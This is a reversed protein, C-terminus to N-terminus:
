GHLTREWGLGIGFHVWTMVNGVEDNCRGANRTRWDQTMICGEASCHCFTLYYQWMHYGSMKADKGKKQTGGYWRLVICSTGTIRGIGFHVWTIVNGAEDNCRGANRRRWDQM